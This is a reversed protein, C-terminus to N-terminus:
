PDAGETDFTLVHSSRLPGRVLDDGRRHAGSALELGHLGGGALVGGGLAGLSDQAVGAGGGGGSGEADPERTRTCAAHWTWRAGVDFGSRTVAVRRRAGRTEGVATRAHACLWPRSSPSPSSRGCAVM